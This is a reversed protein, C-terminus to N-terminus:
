LRKDFFFEKKCWSLWPHFIGEYVFVFMTEKFIGNEIQIEKCKNNSKAKSLVPCIIM